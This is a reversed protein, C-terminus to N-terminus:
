SFSCGLKNEIDMVIEYIKHQLNKKDNYTKAGNTSNDLESNIVYIKYDHIHEYNNDNEIQMFSYKEILSNYMDLLENIYYTYQNTIHYNRKLLPRLYIGECDITAIKEKIRSHMHLLSYDNYVSSNVIQEQIRHHHRNLYCKMYTNRIDFVLKVYRTFIENMVWSNNNSSYFHDFYIYMGIPRDYM